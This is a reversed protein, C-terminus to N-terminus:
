RRKTSGGIVPMGNMKELHSPCKTKNEDRKKKNDMYVGAKDVYHQLTFSRNEDDIITSNDDTDSGNIDSNTVSKKGETLPTWEEDIWTNTNKQMHRYAEHDDSATNSPSITNLASNQSPPTKQSPSSTKNSTPSPTNTDSKGDILDQLAHGSCGQLLTMVLLIAFLTSRELRLQM